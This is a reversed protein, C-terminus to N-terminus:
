MSPKLADLAHRVLRQEPLIDDRHVSTEVFIVGRQEFRTVLTEFYQIFFGRGQASRLQLHYNGYINSYSWELDFLKLMPTAETDLPLAVLQEVKEPWADTDNLCISAARLKLHMLQHFPFYDLWLHVNGSGIDLDLHRLSNFHESRLDLWSTNDVQLYELRGWVDLPLFVAAYDRGVNTIFTTLCPLQLPLFRPLNPNIDRYFPNLYITLIRLASLCVPQHPISYEKLGSLHLIELRPLMELLSLVDEMPVRHVSAEFSRIANSLGRKWWPWYGLDGCDLLSSFMEVNPCRSIIWYNREEHRDLRVLSLRKVFRGLEPRSLLLDSFLLLRRDPNINQQSNVHFSTYLVEAGIQYFRRSVQVITRRLPLVAEFAQAQHGHRLGFLGVEVITVSLNTELPIFTALRFIKLWIEHPLEPPPSSSTIQGSLM